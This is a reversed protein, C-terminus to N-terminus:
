ILSAPTAGQPLRSIFPSAAEKCVEVAANGFFDRYQNIIEEVVTNGDGTIVCHLTTSDIQLGQVRRAQELALTGIIQFQERIIQECIAAYITKVDVAVPSSPANPSQAVKPQLASVPEM